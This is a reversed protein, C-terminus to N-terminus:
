LPFGADRALAQLKPALRQGSAAAVAGGLLGDDVLIDHVWGGAANVLAAGACADWSNMHGEFYAIYRGAAVYALGLAGSGGRHYIGGSDLLKEIFLATPAVPIRSSYGVETMGQTFDQADAPRIARGNCHAGDGVVATFTEDTCPDRVIGGAVRGQAVLGISVCWTPVGSLFPQTGDIPDVVWIPGIASLRANGSEEGVFGDHPYRREIENRILREVARDAESVVDQPGKNEVTLQGLNRYYDHALEGAQAALSTAFDIRERIETRM